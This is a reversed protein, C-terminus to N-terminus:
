KKVGELSVHLRVEDGIGDPMFGMGYAARSVNFTAEAGSRYGGWPDKGEGTRTFDVAVEKTVGHLTLDGVATWTDGSKKSVKKSKFTIVPYQKANFFDPSALHQDRKENHTDVSGAGVKIDIVSKAPDAPDLAFTGTVENFRGYLYSVNLHKVRFVVSSHANDLEYTDAAFAPAATALLALAGVAARALVNM